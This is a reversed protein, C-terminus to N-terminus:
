VEAAELHQVDAAAFAAQDDAQPRGAAGAQAPSSANAAELARYRRGLYAALLFGFALNLVAVLFIYFVM